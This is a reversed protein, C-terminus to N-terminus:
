LVVPKGQASDFPPKGQASDFPPAAAPAPWARSVEGIVLTVGTAVLIASLSIKAVIFAFEVSSPPLNQPRWPLLFMWPLAILVVFWSTAVILARPRLARRLWAGQAIAPWGAAAIGAMLSLALLAAIVWRFWNAAYRVAAFLWSVDDWGFRAIFWANIGGSRLTVFGEARNALWWILLVILAAPVVAPIAAIARRIGPLSAGQSSIVIAGNATLGVMALAALALLASVILAWVTSEPTILFGWYVGATIASGILIWITALLLKM